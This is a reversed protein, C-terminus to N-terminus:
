DWLEPRIMAAITREVEVDSACYRAIDEMRGDLFAQHVMSGDMGVKAPFGLFRAVDELKYNKGYSGGGYYEMVDVWHEDYRNTPILSPLLGLNYKWCRHQLWPIDFGKINYGVWYVVDSRMIGRDKLWASFQHMLEQEDTNRVLVEPPESGYALGICVIEGKMSNLAQKGWAADFNEDIWKEVSEPKKYNGPVSGRIEERSPKEGGFTEIDITCVHVGHTKM